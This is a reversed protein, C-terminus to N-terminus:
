ADCFRRMIPQRASRRAVEVFGANRFADLLGTYISIPPLRKGEETEVPYGEVIRAGQSAAYAVAAELLSVLLGQGRFPRAVFFCVISWVPQDDVRKLTTSHELSEYSERPGVSCWGVPEGAVYALIGPVQGGDVLGKLGVRREAPKQRSFEARSLRWWMCWCGAYAGRPGFLKELDDWRDPTVPHFELEEAQTAQESM